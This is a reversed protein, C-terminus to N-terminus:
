DEGILIFPAWLVPNEALPRGPQGVFGAGPQGVSRAGPPVRLEGHRLRELTALQARRLAAAKGARDRNLAQYFEEMQAIAVVDAVSWLSVVMSATGAYIFARSLGIVGDGTVKGTGSDCASLTVLGARLDLQFIERVTLLGDGGPGDGAPALAIFSALPDPRIVAHTAFHLVTQGPALEKVLGETAQAGALVSANEVGHLDGVRRAELEAGALPSLRREGPSPPMTPNGVALLHPRGADLVREKKRRTYELVSIAPTYSLTYREVLYRGEGDRLAAFSVLFLPGHPVVVVRSGPAQPLARAIPAILLDHLRRLAPQPDHGERHERFGHRLEAVQDELERRSTRSAFAAVRGDPAVVWAFLDEATTFYEVITAGRRPGEGRLAALTPAPVLTWSALEPEERRFTELETSTGGGREAVGAEGAPRARSGRLEEQLRRIRRLKEEDLPKARLDRDGLLDLFARARASEAVRLAEEGRGLEFLLRVAGAYVEQQDELFSAKAPDEAIGAARLAEIADMSELYSALAEERRGLQRQILARGHLAACLLEQQGAERAFAVGREGLALAEAAEGRRAQIAGARTFCAALWADEAELGATIARQYADLAKGEEGAAEHVLGLEHLISAVGRPHVKEFAELARNYAALAAAPDGKKFWARGLGQLNYAAGRPDGQEERIQLAEQYCAIAQDYSGQRIHLAGTRNLAPCLEARSGLRRATAISRELWRLAEAEEGQQLYANGIANMIQAQGNGLGLAERLRLAEQFHRVATENAGANVELNGLHERTLSEAARAGSEVEIALAALLHERAKEFGGKWKLYVLGMADLVTAQSKRDGAEVWIALAEELHVIAEAYQSRWWSGQGMAERVKAELPRDKLERAIALARELSQAALDFRGQKNLTEGERRLARAELDHAELRRSLDGALALKALATALEDAEQLAAAEELLDAILDRSAPADEPVSGAVLLAALVPVPLAM